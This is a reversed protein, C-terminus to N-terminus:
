RFGLREQGPNEYPDGPHEQLTLVCRLDRRQQLDKEKVDATAPYRVELTFDVMADPSRPPLPNMWTDSRASSRTGPCCRTLYPLDGVLM